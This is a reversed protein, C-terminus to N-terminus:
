LNPHKFPVLKLSSSQPVHFSANRKQRKWFDQEQARLRQQAALHEFSQQNRVVVKKFEALALLYQVKDRPSDDPWPAKGCERKVRKVLRKSVKPLCPKLDVRYEYRRKPGGEVYSEICKYLGSKSRRVIFYDGTANDM